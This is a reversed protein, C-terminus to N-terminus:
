VFQYDLTHAELLSRLYKDIEEISYDNLVDDKITQTFFFLKNSKEFNFNIQKSIERRNKCNAYYMQKCANLEDESISEYNDSDEYDLGCHYLYNRQSIYKFFKGNLLLNSKLIQNQM